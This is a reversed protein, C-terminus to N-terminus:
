NCLYSLKDVWIFCIVQVYYNTKEFDECITSYIQNHKNNNTVLLSLTKYKYSSEKYSTM